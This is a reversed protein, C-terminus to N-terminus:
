TSCPMTINATQIYNPEVQKEWALDALNVKSILEAFTPLKDQSLIHLSNNSEQLFQSQEESLDGYVTLIHETTIKEIISSLSYLNEDFNSDELFYARDKGASLFLAAKQNSLDSSGKVSDFLDFTSLGYIPVNLAFAIANAAVIGVRLSTFAGPGKVVILHTIDQWQLNNKTLLDSIHPQLVEAQNREGQWNKEDILATESLLAISNLATATNIALCIM